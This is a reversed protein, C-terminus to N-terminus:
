FNVDVGKKAEITVFEAEFPHIGCEFKFLYAVAPITLCEYSGEANIDGKNNQCFKTEEYCAKYSSM